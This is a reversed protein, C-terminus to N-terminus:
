AASPLSPLCRSCLSKRELEEQWQEGKAREEEQEGRRHGPHAGAQHGAAQLRAADTTLQGNQKPNSNATSLLTQFPCRHLLRASCRRTTQSAAWVVAGSMCVCDWCAFRGPTAVGAPVCAAPLCATRVHWELVLGCRLYIIALGGARMQSGWAAPFAAVPSSPANMLVLGGVLM